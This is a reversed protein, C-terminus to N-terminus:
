CLLRRYINTLTEYHQKSNYQLEAKRRANKGMEIIKNPNSILSAIKQALIHANKPEFLYGSVGDDIQEPIGGINAGIVPKGYAFAELVVYPFNEYWESPVIIFMAGKIIEELEKGTRYGLMEVSNELGNAAIYRIIEGKLPGEGVIKLKATLKLSGVAKLLTLIGKERSLRGLCLFYDAHAYSPRTKEIDIFNPIYVVKDKDFGYEILKNRLFNSPTIFCDILKYIGAARHIYFTLAAMISASLSGKKCRTSIVKYYRNGKCDECIRNNNLFLTNPCIAEYDHVTWVVPLNFSKASYLVSPSLQHHFNQVHVLQPKEAEILRDLNKKAESCYITRSIVKLANRLNIKALMKEFDINSVFYNSYNSPLNKPHRMSFPIVEHGESKLLNSVEFYYRESGGRLYHFNNIQLIKM